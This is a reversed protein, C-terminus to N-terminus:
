AKCPLVALVPPLAGNMTTLPGIRWFIPMFQVCLASPLPLRALAVMPRLTRRIISLTSPPKGPWSSREVSPWGPLNVNQTASSSSSEIQSGSDTSRPMGAPVDATVASCTCDGCWIM